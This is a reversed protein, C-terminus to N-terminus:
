GGAYRGAEQIFQEIQSPTLKPTTALVPSIDEYAISAPLDIGMGSLISRAAGVPIETSARSAFELPLMDVGREFESAIYGRFLQAGAIDEPMAIQVVADGFQSAHTAFITAVGPDTSTPTVAVKQIADSGPWGKTTGRFLPCSDNHVLVPAMPGARSPPLVTAPEVYFDHDAQVTLDWMWGDHDAPVSGGVVVASRGDPTQLRDGTKLHGAPIFADLNADWIPHNTTTEIVATRGRSRITLDFLDRDHNILVATVPEPGVKGTRPNEALVKRGPSLNAIAVSRGGPLMVKTNASFSQGCGV